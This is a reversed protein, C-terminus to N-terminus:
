YEWKPDKTPDAMQHYKRLFRAVLEEFQEDTLGLVADPAELSAQLRSVIEANLSRKNEAAKAKLADRMGDPMRLMYQDQKESPYQHKAM